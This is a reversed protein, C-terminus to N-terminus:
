HQPESFYEPLQEEDLPQGPIVREEAVWAGLDILKCRYSCFPRYPNDKSWEVPASCIPCDIQIGAM